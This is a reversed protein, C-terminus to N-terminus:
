QQTGNLPEVRWICAPKVFASETGGVYDHTRGPLVKFPLRGPLRYAERNFSRNKDPSLGFKLEATYNGFTLLGAPLQVTFHLAGMHGATERILTEEASGAMPMLLLAPKDLYDYIIVLPHLSDTGTLKQISITFVAGCDYTITPQGDPPRVSFGDVSLLDNGHDQVLAPSVPYGDAATSLPSRYRTESDREAMEAYYTQLVDTPRGRAAIRGDEMWLCHTCHDLIDDPNHSVMLMALRGSLETRLHETVRKRFNADGASLTEDVLLLDVGSRFSVAFGLRVFMGDSYTKVPRDFFAGLDAFREIEMIAQAAARRNMGAMSLYTSANERGTLEPIFNGGVDLISHLRGQMQVEGSSPRSIGGIIRLLTSKGSGNRGILGWREGPLIDLNVGSLATVEADSGKGYSKSLSRVRLVPEACSSMDASDIPEHSLNKVAM